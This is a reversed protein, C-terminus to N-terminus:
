DDLDRHNKQTGYIEENQKIYWWSNLSYLTPFCGLYSQVLSLIRQDTIKDLIIKEELLENMSYSLTQFAYEDSIKRKQYDSYKPVHANYGDKNTLKDVLYNVSDKDLFNEFILIGDKKLKKELELPHSEQIRGLNKNVISNIRESNQNRLNLDQYKFVNKAEFSSQILEDIKNM